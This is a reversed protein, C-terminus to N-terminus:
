IQYFTGMRAILWTRIRMSSENDNPEFYHHGTYILWLKGNHEIASGSFCGSEMDGPVLATPLTEWHIMDKSRAHGWHM